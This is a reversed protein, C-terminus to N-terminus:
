PKCKQCPTYGMDIVSERTGTYKELNKSKMDNVSSCSPLHFKKTNKNLVFTYQDTEPIDSTGSAQASVPSSRTTSTGGTLSGMFPQKGVAFKQLYNANSADSMITILGALSLQYFDTGKVFGSVLEDNTNYYSIKFWVEEYITQSSHIECIQFNPIDGKKDDGKANSYLPISSKGEIHAVGFPVALELSYPLSEFDSLAPVCPVMILVLVLMIMITRRKM